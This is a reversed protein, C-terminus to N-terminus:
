MAIAITKMNEMIWQNISNYRWLSSFQFWSGHYTPFHVYSWTYNNCQMVPSDEQRQLVIIFIKKNLLIANHKHLQCCHLFGIIVLLFSFFCYFLHNPQAWKKLYGPHQQHLSLHTNKAGPLSYFITQIWVLFWTTYPWEKKRVLKFYCLSPYKVLTFKFLLNSIEKKM